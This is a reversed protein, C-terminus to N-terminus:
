LKLNLADPSHAGSSKFAKFTALVALPSVLRPLLSRCSNTEFTVWAFQLNAQPRCSDSFSSRQEDSNSFIQNQLLM